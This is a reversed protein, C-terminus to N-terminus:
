ATQVSKRRIAEEYAKFIPQVKELLDKDVILIRVTPNTLCKKYRFDREKPKNSFASLYGSFWKARSEVTYDSGYSGYIYMLQLKDLLIRINALDFFKIDFTRESKQCFGPDSITYEKSVHYFTDKEM